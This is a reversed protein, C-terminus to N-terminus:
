LKGVACAEADIDWTCGKKKCVTERLDVCQLFLIMKTRSLCVGDSRLFCHEKSKYRKCAVPTLDGCTGQVPPPSQEASDPETTALNTVQEGGCSFLLLFVGYVALVSNKGRFVLM